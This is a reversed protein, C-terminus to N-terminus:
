VNDITKGQRLVGSKLILEHLIGRIESNDAFIAGNLRTQVLKASRSRDDRWGDDGWRWWSRGERSTTRMKLAM